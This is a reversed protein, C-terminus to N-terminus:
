AEKMSFGNSKWNTLITITLRAMWFRLITMTYKEKDMFSTKSGTERIPLSDMLTTFDVMDKCKTTKGNVMM